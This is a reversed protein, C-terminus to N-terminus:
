PLSGRYRNLAPTILKSRLLHSAIALMTFFVGIAMRAHLMFGAALYVVAFFAFFLEAIVLVSYILLLYLM